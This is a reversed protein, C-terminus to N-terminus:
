YYQTHQFTVCSVPPARNDNVSKEGGGRKKIINNITCVSQTKFLVVGNRKGRM